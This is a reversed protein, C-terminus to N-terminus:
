FLGQQWMVVGEGGGGDCWWGELIEPPIHSSFIQDFFFFKLHRSFDYSPSSFVIFNWESFSWGKNKWFFNGFTVLFAITSFIEGHDHIKKGGFKSPFFNVVM